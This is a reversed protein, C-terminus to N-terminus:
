TEHARLHTYSVSIQGSKATTATQNQELDEDGSNAGWAVDMRAQGKVPAEPANNQDTM